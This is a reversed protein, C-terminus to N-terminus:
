HTYMIPLKVKLQDGGITIKNQFIDFCEIEVQVQKDIKWESELNFLNVKSYKPHCYNPYVQYIYPGIYNDRPIIEFTGQPSKWMINIDYVGQKKVSFELYYSGDNDDRVSFVLDEKPEILVMLTEGGENVENRFSDKAVIRVINLQGAHTQISESNSSNTTIVDFKSHDLNGPSVVIQKELARRNGDNLNTVKIKYLGSLFQTTKPLLIRIDRDQSAPLM